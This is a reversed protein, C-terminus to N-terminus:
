GASAIAAPGFSWVSSVLITALGWVRMGLGDSPVALNVIVAVFVLVTSSVPTATESGGDGHQLRLIPASAARADNVYSQEVAFTARFKM